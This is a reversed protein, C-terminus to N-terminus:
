EAKASAQKLAKLPLLWAPFLQVSMIFGMFLIFQLYNQLETLHVVLPPTMKIAECSLVGPLLLMWSACPQMCQAIYATTCCFLQKGHHSTNSCELSALFCFCAQMGLKLSPDHWTARRNTRQNHRAVAHSCDIALASVTLM